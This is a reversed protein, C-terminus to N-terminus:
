DRKANQRWKLCDAHNGLESRLCEREMCVFRSFPNRGACRAEPGAALARSAESNAAPRSNPGPRQQAEAANSRPAPAIGANTTGSVAGSTTQAVGANAPPPRQQGPLPRAVSNNAGPVAAGSPPLPQGSTDATPLREVPQGVV